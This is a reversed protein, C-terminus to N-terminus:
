CGDGGRFIGNAITIILIYTNSGDDDSVLSAAVVRDATRRGEHDHETAISITVILHVHGIDYGDDVMLLAYGHFAEVGIGGVHITVATRVLLIDFQYLLDDQALLEADSYFFFTVFRM